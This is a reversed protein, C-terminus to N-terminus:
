LWRFTRGHGGFVASEFRVHEGGDVRREDGVVRVEGEVPQDRADVVDEHVELDPLDAQDDEGEDHQVEDVPQAIADLLVLLPLRLGRRFDDRLVRRLVSRGRAHLLDDGEEALVLEARRELADHHHDAARDAGGDDHVEEGAGGAGEPGGCAGEAHQVLRRFFLLHRVLFGM